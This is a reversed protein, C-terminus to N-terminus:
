GEVAYECSLDVSNQPVDCLATYIRYSQRSTFQRLGNIKREAIWAKLTLYNKELSICTFKGQHYLSISYM